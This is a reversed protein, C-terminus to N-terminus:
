PTQPGLCESWRLTERMDEQSYWGEDIFVELTHKKTIIIELRALFREQSPLAPSNWPNRASMKMIALFAM